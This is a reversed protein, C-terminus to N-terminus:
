FWCTITGGVSHSRQEVGSVFEANHILAYGYILELDISQTLKAKGKLSVAHDTEQISQSLGHETRDFALSVRARKKPFRYTLEAFTDRSDTGMHHGIILGHYTYGSTYISNLYWTTPKDARADFTRAWEFRFELNELSLLRPLYLGYLYAWMRPLFKQYSDEGDAEVYLQLPQVEFPLNLKLDYGARQDGAEEACGNPDTCHESRGTLSNWWIRANTPRGQGGLLATRELGIEIYPHPKFNMKMGWLYPEPVDARDKELQTIFFTFGFPGLYKFVWPLIVPHPNSIRALTLPEANNTLLIAGHYGPGWWQSERGVVLDWGFDFVAYGQKIILKSGDSQSAKFEPNLYFSFRGVDEVRSTFGIRGNSGREYLDGDNNHNLAQEKEPTIGYTLTRVDANTNVYTAYVTDPLKLSGAEPEEPRLQQKLEHVLSKIFASGGASNQEAEHLLRLAEARSIPRTTLLASRVVGEAELRSLLAYADDNIDIYTSANAGFAFMTILTFLCFISFRNIM